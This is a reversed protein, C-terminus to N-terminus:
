VGNNILSYPGWALTRHEPDNPIIYRKDDNASLAVKTVCEATIIHKRSRLTNFQAHYNKNKQSYFLCDKYIEFLINKKVVNNKVGKCKKSEVRYCDNNNCNGDCTKDHCMNGHKQVKFANLKSRLGVFETIQKGGAADKMMGLVKKNMGVPINSPHDKSYNSTDFWRPVDDSIDKYFDETQIKYRLSNTDTFLLRAKNSYRPKIYEYHFKYVLTKSIDLISQGLYIPKNLMVTSEGMRVSVLESDDLIYSGRFNSKAILKELTKTELGNVIKTKSRMRVNEITKGLVRNNMLKYFDKEFENTAVKRSETNSNIYDRLFNSEEYKIGRHIKTLKLGHKM